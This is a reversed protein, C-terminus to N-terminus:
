QMHVPTDHINKPAANNDGDEVVVSHRSGACFIRRFDRQTSRYLFIYLLSNVMPSSLLLWRSGIYYWSPLGAVLFLLNMPIYTVYFVVCIVFLSRASRIILRDLYTAASQFRYRILFQLLMMGSRLLAVVFIHSCLKTRSLFRFEDWM